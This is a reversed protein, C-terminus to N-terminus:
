VRRIFTSKKPPEVSHVTKLIEKVSERDVEKKLRTGGDYIMREKRVHAIIINEDLENLPTGDELRAYIADLEKSM